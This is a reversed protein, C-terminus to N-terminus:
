GAPGVAYLKPAALPAQPSVVLNAAGLRALRERCKRQSTGFRTELVGASVFRFRAVWALFEEDRSKQEHQRRERQVLMGDDARWDREDPLQQQKDTSSSNGSGARERVVCRKFFGPGPGVM